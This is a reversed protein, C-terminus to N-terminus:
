NKHFLPKSKGLLAVFIRKNKFRNIVAISLLVITPILMNFLKLFILWYVCFTQSVPLMLASVIEYETYPFMISKDLLDPTRVNPPMFELSM